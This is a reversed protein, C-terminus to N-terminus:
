WRCVKSLCRRGSVVFVAAVGVVDVAVVVVYGSWRCRDVRLM